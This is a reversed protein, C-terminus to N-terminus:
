NLMLILKKVDRVLKTFAIYEKNSGKFDFYYYKVTDLVVYPLTDGQYIIARSLIQDDNNQANFKLFFIIFYMICFLTTEHLKQNNMILGQLHQEM